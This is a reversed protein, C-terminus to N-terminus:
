LPNVTNVQVHLRLLLACPDKHRDTEAASVQLESPDPLRPHGRARTM